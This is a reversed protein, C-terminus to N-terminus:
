LSKKIEEPGDHPFYILDENLIGRGLKGDLSTVKTVMHYLLVKSMLMKGLASPTELTFDIRSLLGFDINNAISMRPPM